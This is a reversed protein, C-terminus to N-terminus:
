SSWRRTVFEYTQRGSLHGGVIVPPSVSAPLARANVLGGSDQLRVNFWTMHERVHGKLSRNGGVLGRTHDTARSALRLPRKGM